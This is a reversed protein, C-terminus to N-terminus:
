YEYPNPPTPIGHVATIDVTPVQGNAQTASGTRLAGTVEIWTDAPTNALAAAAPGSLDVLVPAADAACCTIRMRALRTRGPDDDPHVVFGQLRVARDDLSGSTDWVVRTQFESVTLLPAEGPPLPEFLSGTGSPRQPVAAPQGARGVSDSGLAPPGVLFIALVPLLLMWPSRSRHEHGAHVHGPEAPAAADSARDDFSGGAPEVGVAEETRPGDASAAHGSPSEASEECRDAADAYVVAGSGAAGDSARACVQPMSEESSPRRPQDPEAAGARIDRWIAIGALAMMVVGALVLWPLLSPKVYRLYVGTFAIKLLAGGLLVLLLNQTERRM